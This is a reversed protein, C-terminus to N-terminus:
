VTSNFNSNTFINTYFLGPIVINEGKSKELSRGAGDVVAAHAAEQNRKKVQAKLNNLVQVTANTYNAEIFFSSEDYRPNLITAM